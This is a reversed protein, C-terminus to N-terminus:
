GRVIAMVIERLEEDRYPKHLIQVESRESQQAASGYGTALIYPIGRKTLLDAVPYSPEGGLNIDLIALDFTAGEALEKASALTMVPGVVEFGWEKLWDEITMALLAEDEVVLVKTRTM